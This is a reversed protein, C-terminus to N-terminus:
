VFILVLVVILFFSVFAPARLIPRAYLEMIFSVLWVSILRITLSLLLITNAWLLSGFVLGAAGAAWWSFFFVLVFSFLLFFNFVGRSSSYIVSGVRLWLYYVVCVLIALALFTFLSPAWERKLSSSYISVFSNLFPACIKKWLDSYHAVLSPLHVLWSKLFVTRFSIVIVGPVFLKYFPFSFKINVVGFISFILKLVKRLLALYYLEGM